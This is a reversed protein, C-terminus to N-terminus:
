GVKARPGVKPKAIKLPIDIIRADKWVRELEYKERMIPTFLHVILFSYDLVIWSSDAQGEVHIPTLGDENLKEYVEDALAHVHKEVNGEAIVFYDCITSVGRVDLTIINSGKKDFIMQCVSKLLKLERAPIKM